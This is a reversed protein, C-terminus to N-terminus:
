RASVRGSRRPRSGLAFRPAKSRGIDGGDSAFWLVGLSALFHRNSTLLNYYGLPSFKGSTAVQRRDDRQGAVITGAVVLMTVLLPRVTKM